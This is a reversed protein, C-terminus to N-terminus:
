RPCRERRQVSGLILRDLDERRFLVRRGLKVFPLTGDAMYNDITRDCVGLYDASSSKKLLPSVVGYREDTRPHQAM